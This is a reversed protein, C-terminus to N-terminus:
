RARAILNGDADFAAVGNAERLLVFRQDPKGPSTITVDIGLDERVVLRARDGDASAIQKTTGPVAAMPNRGTWFEVSNSFVMDFIAAGAYVPVINLGLFIGWRVWKSGHVTANWGYVKRAIPFTGFCATTTVPVFGALLLVTFWAKTRM